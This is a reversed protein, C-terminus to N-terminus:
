GNGGEPKPAASIMAGWCLKARHAAQQCGSMDRYAKWEKKDSFFKDPESEFGDIVMSETPEVPVVVWGDPVVPAPPATYLETGHPLQDGGNRWVVRSPGPRRDILAVPQAEQNAARVMDILKRITAGTGGIDELKCLLEFCADQEDGVAEAHVAAEYIEQMTDTTLTQTM